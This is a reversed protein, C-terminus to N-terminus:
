VEAQKSVFDLENTIVEKHRVGGTQLGTDFVLNRIRNQDFDVLDSCDRFGKIGDFHGFPSPVSTDDTVPTTLGFIGDDSIDSDCGIDSLDLGATGGASVPNGLIVLKQSDFVM